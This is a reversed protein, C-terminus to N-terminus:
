WQQYLFLSINTFVAVPFQRGSAESLCVRQDSEFRIVDVLSFTESLGLV